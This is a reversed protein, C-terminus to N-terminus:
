PIIARRLMGVKEPSIEIQRNFKKFDEDCNSDESIELEEESRFLKSGVWTVLGLALLRLLIPPM